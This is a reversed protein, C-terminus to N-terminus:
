NCCMRGNRACRQWRSVVAGSTRCACKCRWKDALNPSLSKATPTMQHTNREEDDTDRKGAALSRCSWCVLRRRQLLPRYGFLAAVDFAPLIVVVRKEARHKGIEGRFACAAASVDRLVAQTIMPGNE